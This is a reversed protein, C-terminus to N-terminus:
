WQCAGLPRESGQSLGSGHPRGATYVRFDLDDFTALNKALESPVGKPRPSAEGAKTGPWKTDGAHLSPAAVLSAVLAAGSIQVIRNFSTM